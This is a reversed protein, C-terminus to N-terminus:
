MTQNKALFHYRQRMVKVLKKKEQPTFGCSELDKLDSLFQSRHSPKIPVHLGLIARRLRTTLHLLNGELAYSREHALNILIKQIDCLLNNCNYYNNQIAFCNNWVAALAKYVGFTTLGAPALALIKISLNNNKLLDYIANMIWHVLDYSTRNLVQASDIIDNVLGIKLKLLSEDIAAIKPRLDTRIGLEVVDVRLAIIDLIQAKTIDVNQVLPKKQYGTSWLDEIKLDVFDWLVDIGEAHVKFLIEEKESESKDRALRYVIKKIDEKLMKESVDLNQALIDKHLQIDILQKNFDNRVAKLEDIKLIEKDHEIWKEPLKGELVNKFEAVPKEFWRKIFTNGEDDTKYYWSLIAALSSSIIMHPDVWCYACLSAAITYVIWNRIFHGPKKVHNICLSVKKHHNKLANSQYIFLQALYDFQKNSLHKIAKDGQPKGVMSSVIETLQRMWEYQAQVTAQSDFTDIFYVLQGLITNYHEIIRHIFFKNYEIERRQSNKSFWKLPSKHFYYRLPHREQKSWYMELDILNDLVHVIMMLVSRVFPACNKVLFACFFYDVLAQDCNIKYTNKALLTQLQVVDHLVASAQTHNTVGYSRQCLHHMKNLFLDGSSSNKLLAQSFPACWQDIDYVFKKLISKRDFCDNDFSNNIFISDEFGNKQKSPLLLGECVTGMCAPFFFLVYRLQAIFRLVRLM